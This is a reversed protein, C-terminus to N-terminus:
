SFIPVRYEGDLQGSVTVNFLIQTLQHEFPHDDKLVYYVTVTRNREEIPPSMFFDVGYEISQSKLIIWNPKTEEPLLDLFGWEILTIEDFEKDFPIGATVTKKAYPKVIIETLADQVTPGTNPECIM